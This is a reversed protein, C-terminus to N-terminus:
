NRQLGLLLLAGEFLRSPSDDARYLERCGAEVFIAEDLYSRDAASASFEAVSFIAEILVGRALILGSAFVLVVVLHRRVLSVFVGLCLQTM